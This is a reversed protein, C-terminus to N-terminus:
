PSSDPTSCATSQHSGQCIYGSTYLVSDFYCGSSPVEGDDQCLVKEGSLGYTSLTSVNAWVYQQTINHGISTVFSLNESLEIWQSSSQNYRSLSLTLPDIGSLESENYSINIQVWDLTELISTDFDYQEFRISTNLDQAIYSPLHNFEAISVNSTATTNFSGVISTRLTSNHLKVLSENSFSVNSFQVKSGVVVSENVRITNGASDSLNLSFSSLGEDSPTINAILSSNGQLSSEFSNNAFIISPSVNVGSDNEFFTINVITSVGNFFTESSFSINTINPDITDIPIHYAPSSNYNGSKDTCNIMWSYNGDSLELSYNHIKQRSISSFTTNLVDDLVLDCTLNNDIPDDVMFAITQNPSSTWSNNEPRHLTVTPLTNDTINIIRTSSKIEQYVGDQSTFAFFDYLGFDGTANVIWEISTSNNASLTIDQPNDSITYFPVATPDTPIIGKPFSFSEYASFVDLRPYYNGTTSDERLPGSSEIASAIRDAHLQLGDYLQYYQNLLLGAGATFPTAMSTGSLLIHGGGIKSSSIQYGPALINTLNGRNYRITEDDKEIASVTFAGKACSPYSVGTSWDNNGAAVTVFFGNDRAYNIADPIPGSCYSSIPTTSGGVSLSLVSINYEQAHSLCWDFGQLIHQSECTGVSDCVKVAVISSNPATGKFTSDTSSIIGSVHTGHGNDDFPDDDENVVDYGGIVKSNPFSEYGGFDEHTYDIGTDLVCVTQGEGVLSTSSFTESWMNDASVLSIGEDLSVSLVPEQYVGTILSSNELDAIQDPTLNLTMLPLSNFVYSNDPQSQSPHQQSSLRSIVEQRKSSLMQKRSLINSPTKLERTDSSIDKQSTEPSVNLHLTVPHYTGQLLNHSSVAYPDIVTSHKRSSSDKRPDLYVSINTCGVGGCSVNLKVSFMHDKQASRNNSFNIFELSINSLQQAKLSYSGPSSDSNGILISYNDSSPATWYITSRPFSGDLVDDNSALVTENDTDIISINTDSSILDFTKLIYQAGQVANFRVIDTDNYPIFSRQQASGNVPIFSSNSFTDDNEFMDGVVIEFSSREQTSNTTSVADVVLSVNEIGQMDATANFSFLITNNPELSSNTKTLLASHSTNQEPTISINELSFLQNQFTMNISINEISESGTNNVIIDFSDTSTVPLPTPREITLITSTNVLSCALPLALLLFVLFFLGVFRVTGFMVLVNM